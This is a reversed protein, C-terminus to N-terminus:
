SGFKKCKKSSGPKKRCGVANKGIGGVQQKCIGLVSEEATIAFRSIVPPEYQQKENGM